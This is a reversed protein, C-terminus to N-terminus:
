LPVHIKDGPQAPIQADPNDSKRLDLIRTVSSRTLKVGKMKAFDTPGGASTIADHVTMGPTIPVARPQKVEGSVYIVQTNNADRSPTVQITPHTFIEASKYASEINKQLQSPRVGAARVEGIYPLNITGSDGIDYTNSVVTMEETPVGSLKVVVIDGPRLLQETNQALSPSSGFALSLLMFLLTYLPRKM